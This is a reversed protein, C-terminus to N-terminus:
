IRKMEAAKHLFGAVDRSRGEEYESLGSIKGNRWENMWKETYLLEAGIKLCYANFGGGRRDILRNVYSNSCNLEIIAKGSDDISLQAEIEKDGLKSVTFEPIPNIQKDRTLVKKVEIGKGVGRERVGPLSSRAPYTNRISESDQFVTGEFPLKFTDSIAGLDNNYIASLVEAFNESAVKTRSGYKKRLDAVEERRTIARVDESIYERIKANLIGRESGSLNLGTKFVTKSVFGETIDVVVAFSGIQGRETYGPIKLEGLSVDGLKRGQYYLYVKGGKPMDLKVRGSKLLEQCIKERDDKEKKIRDEDILGWTLDIRFDSGKRGVPAGKRFKCFNENFPVEVPLVELRETKGSRHNRRVVLDVQDERIMPGYKQGLIDSLEVINKPFRDVRAQTLRMHTYGDSESTPFKENFTFDPESLRQWWREINMEYSSRTNPPQSNISLEGLNKDFFYMVALKGGMGYERIREPDTHYQGWHPYSEMREKDFGKTSTCDLSLSRDQHDFTITIFTKLKKKEGDVATERMEDIFNDVLECVAIETNANSLQTEIWRTNDFQQKAKHEIIEPPM